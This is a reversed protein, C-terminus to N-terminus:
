LISSVLDSRDDVTIVELSADEQSFAVIWELESIFLSLIIDASVTSGTTAYDYDDFPFGCPYITIFILSQLSISCNQKFQFPFYFYLSKWLPIESPHWCSSMFIHITRSTRLNNTPLLMHCFFYGVVYM